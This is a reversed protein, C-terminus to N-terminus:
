RSMIELLSIRFNEWKYFNKRCRASLSTVERILGLRNKTIGDSVIQVLVLYTELFETCHPSASYKRQNVKM